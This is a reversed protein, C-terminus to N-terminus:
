KDGSKSTADADDLHFQMYGTNHVIHKIAAEVDQMRDKKAILDKRTLDDKLYYSVVGLLSRLKTEELHWAAFPINHQLMNYELYRMIETKGIGTPAKIVTFHGQM